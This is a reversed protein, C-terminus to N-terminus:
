YRRRRVLLYPHPRASVRVPALRAVPLVWGFPLVLAALLMGLGQWTMWGHRSWRDAEPYRAVCRVSNMPERANV